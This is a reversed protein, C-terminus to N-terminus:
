AKGYVQITAPTGNDCVDLTLTGWGSAVDSEDKFSCVGTDEPNTADPSGEGNSARRVNKNQRLLAFRDGAGLHNPAGTEVNTTLKGIDRIVRQIVSKVTSTGPPGDTLVIRQGPVLTWDFETAHYTYRYDWILSKYPEHLTGALEASPVTEGSDYAQGDYRPPRLQITQVIEVPSGNSVTSTQTQVGLGCRYLGSSSALEGYIFQLTYKGVLLDYRPRAEFNDVLGTLTVSVDTDPISAVLEPYTAAEPYTWITVMEPIWRCLRRYVDALYSDQIKEEPPLMEFGPLSYTFPVIAAGQALVSIFENALTPTTFLGGTATPRALLTVQTCAVTEVASGMTNPTTFFRRNRRFVRSQMFFWLSPVQFTHRESSGSASRPAAACVGMFVTNGDPDLLTLFNFPAFIPTGDVLGPAELAMSDEAGNTSTVVCSTIGWEALTKTVPSFSSAGFRHLGPAYKISYDQLSM